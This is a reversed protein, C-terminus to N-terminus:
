AWGWAPREAARPSRSTPPLIACTLSSPGSKGVGSTRETSGDIVTASSLAFATCSHGPPSSAAARSLAGPRRAAAQCQRSGAAAGGGGLRAEAAPQSGQRTEACQAEPPSGGCTACSFTIRSPLNRGSSLGNLPARWGGRARRRGGSQLRGGPHTPTSQTHERQSALRERDAQQADCAGHVHVCARPATASGIRVIGGRMRRGARASDQRATGARRTHVCSREQVATHAGRRPM